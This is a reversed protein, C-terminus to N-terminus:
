AVCNYVTYLRKAPPVCFLAETDGKDKTRLERDHKQYRSVPNVHAIAYKHLFM